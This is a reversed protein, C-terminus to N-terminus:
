LLGQNFILDFLDVSCQCILSPVVDFNRVFVVLELARASVCVCVCLCVSVCVCVCVCVCLYTCARAVESSQMVDRIGSLESSALSKLPIIGVSM